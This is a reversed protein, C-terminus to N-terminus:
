AQIVLLVKRGVPCNQGPFCQHSAWLQQRMRNCQSRVRLLKHIRRGARLAETEKPDPRYSSMVQLVEPWGHRLRLVDERGPFSPEAGDLWACFSANLQGRKVEAHDLLRAHLRLALAPQRPEGRALQGGHGGSDGSM